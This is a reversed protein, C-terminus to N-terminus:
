KSVGFDGSITDALFVGGVDDDGPGYFRGEIGNDADGFVGADNISLGSWLIPPFSEGSATYVIDFFTVDLAPADLDSIELLAVSEVRKGNAPTTSAHVGTMVGSWAAKGSIPRSDDAQGISWATVETSGHVGITRYTGGTGHSLGRAEKHSVMSDELWGASDRHDTWATVDFGPTAAAHTTSEAVALLSQLSDRIESPTASRNPSDPPPCDACPQKFATQNGGGGCAVLSLVALFALLKVPNTLM